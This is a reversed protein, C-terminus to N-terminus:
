DQEHSARRREAERIVFQERSTQEVKDMDRLIGRLESVFAERRESLDPTPELLRQDAAVLRGTAFLLASVSEPSRVRNQAVYQRGVGLALKTLEKESIEAPVDRLVDALIEYAEFYPRLVATAILPRKARLLMDIEAGGARV